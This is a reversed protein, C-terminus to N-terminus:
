PLFNEIGAFLLMERLQKRAEELKEMVQLHIDRRSAQEAMLLQLLKLLAELDINMEKGGSDDEKGKREAAARLDRLLEWVEHDSIKSSVPPASTTPKEPEQYGHLISLIDDNPGDIPNRAAPEGCPKLEEYDILVKEIETRVGTESGHTRLQNLALFCAGDCKRIAEKLFEIERVHKLFTRQLGSYTNPVSSM